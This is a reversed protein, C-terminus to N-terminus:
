LGVTTLGCVSLCRAKGLAGLHWFCEFICFFLGVVASLFAEKGAACISGLLFIILPLDLGEETEDEEDFM